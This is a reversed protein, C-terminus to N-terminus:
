VPGAKALRSYDTSSSSFDAFSIAPGGTGATGAIGATGSKQPVVSKYEVVSPTVDTSVM